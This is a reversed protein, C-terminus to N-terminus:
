PYNQRSLSLEPITEIPLARSVRMYYLNYKLTL